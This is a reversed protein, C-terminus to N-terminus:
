KISKFHNLINELDNFDNLAYLLTVDCIEKEYNFNISDLIYQFRKTYNHNELINYLNEEIIKEINVNNLDLKNEKNLYIVNDKFIDYIGKSFNSLVFTNSSMLEFIRRAFMTYSNTVTNINLGFKSEKYINPMKDIKEM